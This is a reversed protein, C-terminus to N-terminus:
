RKLAELVAEFSAPKRQGLNVNKAESLMEYGHQVGPVECCFIMPEFERLLVWYEKWVAGWHTWDEENRRSAWSAAVKEISRWTTYVVDSKAILKWADGLGNLHQMKFDRGHHLGNALLSDRLWLTGTHPITCIAIM